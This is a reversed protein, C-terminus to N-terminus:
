LLHNIAVSHSMGTKRLVDYRVEANNLQHLEDSNYENVSKIPCDANLKFLNVQKGYEKGMVGDIQLWKTV